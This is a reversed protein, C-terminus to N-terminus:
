FFTSALFVQLHDAYRYRSLRRSANQYSLNYLVVFGFSLLLFASQNQSLFFGFRCFSYFTSAYIAYVCLLLLIVWRARVLLAVPAALEVGEGAPPAEFRRSLGDTWGTRKKQSTPM